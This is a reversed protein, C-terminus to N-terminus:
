DSLPGGEYCWQLAREDTLIASGTARISASMEPTIGDDASAGIQGKRMMAGPDLPPVESLTRIEFKDEHAKMWSFSTYELVSAWDTPDPDFGLFDAIRRVSADPERKLENFHLFLVNPEHRLEWWAAVFGFITGILMPGMQEVFAALDPGLVEDKPMQWLDFWADSHAAIFPRMSAVAEDPNRVTVVYRVDPGTGPAVYPLDPPASHSKFARRRDRPLRDFAEILQARDATPSPVFELWPVEAYVDAFDADGGSRLQHVINMTWTTGSKPPVSIVIDGDRWAVEQQMTPDIWPIGAEEPPGGDQAEIMAEGVM